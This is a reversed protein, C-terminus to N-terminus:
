LRREQELIHIHKAQLRRRQGSSHYLFVLLALLLLAGGSAAAIWLDKRKLFTKQRAITLQTNLLEKEQEATRYKVELQAISRTINQGRISDKLAMSEALLEFALKHNGSEQYLRALNESISMANETLGYQKAQNLGEEFYQRASDKSGKMQYALAITEAATVRYYPNVHVAMRSGALLYDLAKGPQQRALFAQGLNTRTTYVTEELRHTEAISLAETFYRLCSDWRRLDKFVLGRNTLVSALLDYNGSSRALDESRSLLGLATPHKGLFHLVSALNNFVSASPPLALKSSLEISQYYSRAAEDYLGQLKYINGMGNYVVPLVKRMPESQLGTRVQQRYVEMCRAYAGKAAYLRGLQQMCSIAGGAFLISNSAELNREYMGIASDPFAQALAAAQVNAQILTNSDYVARILDERGSAVHSLLMLFLSCYLKLVNM